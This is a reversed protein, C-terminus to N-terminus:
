ILVIDMLGKGGADDIWEVVAFSIFYVGVTNKFQYNRNM